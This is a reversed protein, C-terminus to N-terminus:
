YLKTGEMGKGPNVVVQMGEALGKVCACDENVGLLEVSRFQVIGEEAVYVGIREGSKYLSNLPVLLGKVSPKYCWVINQVRNEITGDIFQNFCVVAGKPQESIKIVTGRYEEGDILFKVEKNTEMNKNSDLYVFMWTPSLNDVIKGIPAYKVFFNNGPSFSNLRSNNKAKEALLGEIHSLLENLELQMLNQPTLIQEMDDLSRYFLGSIPAQVATEKVSRSIDVGTPFLTAIVEGKRFRYGEQEQIPKLEGEIPATLVIERNAFVAKVATEYKIWGERVTILLLGDGFLLSNIRGVVLIAAAALGILLLAKIRKRSM